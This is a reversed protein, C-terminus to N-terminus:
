FPWLRVRTRFWFSSLKRLHSEALEDVESKSRLKRSDSCVSIITLEEGYAFILYEDGEDFRYLTPCMGAKAIEDADLDIAVHSRKVGKLAKTVEFVFRGEEFNQIKSSSVDNVDVVKGVFIAKSERFRKTLPSVICSCALVSQVCCTGFVFLVAVRLM